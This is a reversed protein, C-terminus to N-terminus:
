EVTSIFPLYVYNSRARVEITITSRPNLYPSADLCDIKSTTLTTTYVGPLNYTYTPSTVTSTVGEGFDWLLNDYGISLNTFTVAMPAFGTTPTAVFNSTLLTGAGADIAVSLFLDSAIEVDGIYGAPVHNSVQYFNSDNPLVTDAFVNVVLGDPNLYSHVNTATQTGNNSVTFETTPNAGCIVTTYYGYAEERENEVIQAMLWGNM